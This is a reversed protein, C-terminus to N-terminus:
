LSRIYRINVQIIYRDYNHGHPAHVHTCYSSWSANLNTRSVSTSMSRLRRRRLAPRGAPSLSSSPTSFSPPATLYSAFSPLTSPALSAPLSPDPVRYSESPRLILFLCSLPEDVLDLLEEEGRFVGTHRVSCQMNTAM